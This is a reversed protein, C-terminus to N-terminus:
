EPPSAARPISMRTSKYRLTCPRSIISSSAGTHDMQRCRSQHRMEVVLARLNHRTVSHVSRITVRLRGLSAFHRFGDRNSLMPANERIRFALCDSPADREAQTVMCWHQAAHVPPFTWVRSTGSHIASIASELPGWIAFACHSATLPRM